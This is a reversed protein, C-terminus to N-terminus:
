YTWSRCIPCPTATTRSKGVGAEGVIAVLQGSGSRARAFADRLAAMEGERGVFRTLGRIASAEIRTAADGASILEYAEQPDEKGAMHLQGLRKFEFFDRALKFTHKSVVISRPRALKQMRFAVNTTDGVATYDLRLDNGIAGVIVSGSNLGLRVEFVLGRRRELEARFGTMAERISLAAQCARLAHDEHALPAGFLAMVGDGMFQNITGMRKHIEDMLIRFFGNMIHHIEEPDLKESHSTYNVVDAFMVTVVKREGEISSLTTLITDTLFKPTYPRLAPEELPLSEDVAGLNHGCGGCFSFEPPNSFSCESCVRGLRTGCQGCFKMGYPNEFECELCKMNNVVSIV